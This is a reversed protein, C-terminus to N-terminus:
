RWDRSHTSIGATNDLPKANLLIINTSGNKKSLKGKIILIPQILVHRLYEYKDPWIIIPIHGYEDELTMFVAKASPHQRRIAIGAVLVEHGEDIFKLDKSSVVNKPLKNRLLKMLHGRPYFGMVSYEKTMEEMQNLPKLPPIDQTVPMPLQIQSSKPRHRLGIEWIIERRNKNFSDLAGSYTLNELVVRSIYVRDMFEGLTSFNGNLTREQLIKKVEAMGLNKIHMLGTLISNEYISFKDESINIDPNLIKICHRKADEKISEVSYFGMPQQNYLSVYFELAYYYKLWSMQYATVGFAFAHAEPFMYQGNFKAFIRKAVKIPVGKLKSGAMFKDKYIKIERLRNEKNSGMNFARRLRDAELPSMGAIDIALQNIQDQFLIIGLTRKLARKENPHDYEWSPNAKINNQKEQHRKIFASISNNVGIGPRVAAVEYAMETLNNPKIRTITQMQAPSEIQFVGVTDARHTMEYVSKDNFDIRTLDIYKGTRIEILNLIEQMQSLTGLALLDIKVFKADESSYKDWQCIFRGPIASPQIPVTNMLSNSSLIMGSPHQALYKPFSVLQKSIEIIEDWIKSSVQNKLERILSIQKDISKINQHNLYYSIKDLDEAPVGFAKGVDKIAGGFTYTSIMGVMAAKSPGWKKHIQEILKERINRPFDLDIDPIVGDISDDPMFRELSLRFQMPDIHSIGILYGILMAVSSGRGRGPQIDNLSSTKNNKVLDIAIQKAMKALEHYILFFGALGHNKILKFEEKLRQNVTVGHIKEDLNKYKKLAEDRCLRELWHQDTYGNFVKYSPFKYDLDQLLNFNCKDAIEKTNLVAQPYWNFLELMEKSSKLYFHSNARRNKHTQFLTSNNNISVLTDNLRYREQTHYHVNNTAVAQLGIKIGLEILKHNRNADGQVLNDQLEIYIDQHNFVDMYNKLIQFSKDIHGKDINMSVESKRCGTLLILGEHHKLLMKPNLKPKVRKTKTWKSTGYYGHALSILHCLNSYGIRNKALLTIHSGDFLTLEVGIISKINFSAATKSFEMAGCLNNHDTIALASYGLEASRSLLEHIWSAGELFSYNSHCHLEIYSNNKMVLKYIYCM